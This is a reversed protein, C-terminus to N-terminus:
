NFLVVEIEVLDDGLRCAIVLEREDVVKSDRKFRMFSIIHEVPERLDVEECPVFSAYNRIKELSIRVVVVVVEFSPRQDLMLLFHEGLPELFGKPTVLFDPLDLLEAARLVVGVGSNEPFEPLVVLLRQKLFLSLHVFEAHLSGIESFKVFLLDHIVCNVFVGQDVVCLRLFFLHLRLVGSSHAGASADVMQHVRHLDVRPPLSFNVRAM